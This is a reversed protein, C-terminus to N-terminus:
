IHSSDGNKQAVIMKQINKIDTRGLVTEKFLLIPHGKFVVVVKIIYQFFNGSFHGYGAAPGSLCHSV